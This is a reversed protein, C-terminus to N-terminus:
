AIEPQTRLCEEAFVRAVHEAVEGRFMRKLKTRRRHSPKLESLPTVEHNVSILYINNVAQEAHYTGWFADYNFFSDENAGVTVQGKSDVGGVYTIDLVKALEISADVLLYPPLIDNCLKTARKIDDYRGRTGQIRGILLAHATPAGILHGPVISFGIIYIRINDISFVLSIDGEYHNQKDFMLSIECLSMENECRWLVIKSAAINEYFTPKVRNGIYYYHLILIDQRAAKDFDLHLYTGFFKNILKPYRKTLDRTGPRTMVSLLKIYNILETIVPRDINLGGKIGHQRVRRIGREALTFSITAFATTTRVTVGITRAFIGATREFIGVMLAFIGVMRAFLGGAEEFLGVTREFISGAKDFVGATRAFVGGARAKSASKSTSRYGVYVM